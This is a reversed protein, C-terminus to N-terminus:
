LVPNYTGYRMAAVFFEHQVAGPNHKLLEVYEAARGSFPVLRGADFIHRL